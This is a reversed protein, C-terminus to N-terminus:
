GKEVKRWLEQWLDEGLSGGAQRAMRRGLARGWRRGMETSSLILGVGAAAAVALTPHRRVYTRWDIMARGSQQAACPM